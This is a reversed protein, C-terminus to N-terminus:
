MAAELLAQLVTEPVQLSGKGTGLRIHPKNEGHFDSGGSCLLGYERALAQALCTQEEDFLPYMTEMGQLGAEKAKELFEPLNQPTLNLWPHALVAVAGISRIFRITEMSDLRKPPVFYGHKPALLTKFAAQISQTYGQATLEAAILARNVQGGPTSAKIKAYDIVYGARGLAEVLAINSEEKRQKAQELLRDIAEYHEPQVFLGLIHVEGGDYDASFEIGPVAQVPTGEAAALFEPLGAVTNHDTLAIASLGLEGALAILERPTCTGDSYTSHTHLDCYKM